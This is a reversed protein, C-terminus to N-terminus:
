QGGRTAPAAPTQARRQMQDLPLYPTVGQAEIVTKNTKSLVSEMTEYYLRQRTVEPALRYEAYIKDFRAADGQAQALLQERYRRAGNIAAQANQEAASVDRFADVVTEPPDTKVIEIGQVAIGAKYSDLIAQMRSRVNQEIQARGAGSLVTDLDLEGVSQRMATEAAELVTEEPNALRFRYLALDKINWRILYSLNVLNQDGTLILKQANGEPIKVARIGSVNEVEVSQIPWPLSLNFGPDLTHSYKAGLWTVLGRERAGVVHASTFVLWLIAAAALIVPLWSKGNPRKPLNFRPGGGGGGGGRRRDPGRTRFIDEINASRRPGDNSEGGEPLWPNRPGRPKPADGGGAPAAGAEGGADGGGDGPPGDGKSGGGWPNRKGAMALGIREIFGGLREM